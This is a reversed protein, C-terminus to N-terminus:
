KKRPIWTPRPRAKSKKMEQEAKGKNGKGNKAEANMGAMLLVALAYMLTKNM